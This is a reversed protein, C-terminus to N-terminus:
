SLSHDKEYHEAVAEAYAREITTSVLMFDIVWTPRPFLGRERSFRVTPLSGPLVYLADAKFAPGIKGALVLTKAM